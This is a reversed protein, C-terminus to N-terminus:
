RFFRLWPRLCTWADGEGTAADVDQPGQEAVASGEGRRSWGRGCRSSLKM